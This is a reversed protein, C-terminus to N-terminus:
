LCELAAISYCKFIMLVGDPAPDRRLNISDAAARGAACLAVACGGAPIRTGLEIGAAM